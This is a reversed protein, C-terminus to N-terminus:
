IIIIYWKLKNKFFHLELVRLLLIELKKNKRLFGETWAKIYTILMKEGNKKYNRLPHMMKLSEVDNM